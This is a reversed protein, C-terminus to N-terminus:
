HSDKRLLRQPQKRIVSTSRQYQEVTMAQETQSVGVLKSKNEKKINLFRSMGKSRSDLTILNQYKADNRSGSNTILIIARQTSFPHMDRSFFRMLELRSIKQLLVPDVEEYGNRGKFRYSRNIIKEWYSKHEYYNKSINYFNTSSYNPLMDFITNPSLKLENNFQLSKLCPNLYVNHFETETVSELKKTLGDLFDEINDQLFQYSHEKSEVYIFYGITQRFIRLGGSIRYGLHRTMKLEGLNSDIFFETLKTIARTYSNDRDGLHIYFMCSNTEQKSNLEQGLEFRYKGITPYFSSPEPFILSELSAKGFCGNNSVIPCTTGTSIDRSIESTVKSLSIGNQMTIHCTRPSTNESNIGDGEYESSASTPSYNPSCMPPVKLHNTISNITKSLEYCDHLELDGNILISTYNDENIFKKSIKAVKRLSLEELAAFRKELSYVREELVHNLYSLSQKFLDFHQMMLYNKRINIRSKTILSYPVHKVNDLYYWVTKIFLSLYYNFGFKLGNFNFSISNTSNLTPYLSWTFGLSELPYINIKMYYNLIECIFEIAIYNDINMSIKLSVQFSVFIKSNYNFERKYWLEFRNSSEILQPLVDTKFKVSLMYNNDTDFETPTNLSNHSRSILEDLQQMSQKLFKNPKPLRLGEFDRQTLEHILIRNVSGVKYHFQYFPDYFHRPTLSSAFDWNNINSNSIIVIKANNVTLWKKSVISVMPATVPQLKYGLFLDEFNIYHMLESLNTVEDLSNDNSDRYIFNLKEHKIFDTILRAIAKESLSGLQNIYSFIASLIELVHIKGHMTLSVEMIILLNDTDILQDFVTIETCYNHDILYNCLSQESEQGLMEIWFKLILILNDNLETVPFVLRTTCYESETVVSSTRGNSSVSKRKDIYILSNPDKCSTTRYSQSFVPLPNYHLGKRKTIDNFNKIVMKQLSFISQPSKIVLKMNNSGYNSEFYEVIHNRLTKPKIDLTTSDGTSFKSFQSQRDALIKLGHYFQKEKTSINSLHEENIENIELKIFKQNFLPCKFMSAFVKIIYNLVPEQYNSGSNIDQIEEDTLPVEFHFNTQSYSTFANINGGVKLISDILHYPQPFEKTGSFITHEVLHALGQINGDNNSGSNISLSVATTELNPDTVLLANLDNALQIAKIRNNYCSQPLKFNADATKVSSYIAM